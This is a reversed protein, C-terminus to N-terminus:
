KDNNAAPLNHLTELSAVESERRVQLLRSGVEQALFTSLTAQMPTPVSGTILVWLGSIFAMLALLFLIQHFLEMRSIPAKKM